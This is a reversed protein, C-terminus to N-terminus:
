SSCDLRGSDLERVMEASGLGAFGLAVFGATLSAGFFRGEGAASFDGLFRSFFDAGFSSLSSREDGGESFLSGSGSGSGSGFAFFFLFM